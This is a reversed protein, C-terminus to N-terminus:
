LKPTLAELVRQAALLGAGTNDLIEPGSRSAGPETGSSNDLSRQEATARVVSMGSGLSKVDGLVKSFDLVKERSVLDCEFSAVQERLTLLNRVMFLHRDENGCM